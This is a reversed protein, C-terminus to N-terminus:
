EGPNETLKKFMDTGRKLHSGQQSPGVKFWHGDSNILFISLISSWPGITLHNHNMPVFAEFLQCDSQCRRTRSLNPLKSSLCKYAIPGDSKAWLRFAFGNLKGTKLRLGSLSYRFPWFRQSWDWCSKCAKTERGTRPNLASICISFNVPSCLGSFSWWRWWQHCHVPQITNPPIDDCPNIMAPWITPSTLSIM